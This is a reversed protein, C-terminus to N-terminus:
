VTKFERVASVSQSTGLDPYQQKLPVCDSASTQVFARDPALIPLCLFALALAGSARSFPGFILTRRRLPM